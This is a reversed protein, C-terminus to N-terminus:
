VKVVLYFISILIGLQVFLMAFKKSHLTAYLAVAITCRFVLGDSLTARVSNKFPTRTGSVRLEEISPIAKMSFVRVIVQGILPRSYIVTLKKGQIIESFDQLADQTM